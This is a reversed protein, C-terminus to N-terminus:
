PKKRLRVFRAMHEANVALRRRRLSSVEGALAHGKGRLDALIRTLDAEEDRMSNFLRRIEVKCPLLEEHARKVKYHKVAAERNVPKSWERERVDGRRALRLLDFEQLETWEILTSFDVPPGPPTLDKAMDNYNKVATAIAKSRAKINKGIAERMKYGTGLAHTKQLEFMRQLMLLELRDVARLYERLRIRELAAKYEVSDPNWQVDIRLARELSEINALAAMYATHAKKKKTARKAVTGRSANAIDEPNFVIFGAELETTSADVKQKLADLERLAEVYDMALVDEEPENKLEELYMKEELRWGEIIADTLGRSSKFDELVPEYEDIIQMAQTVNNCLFTGS